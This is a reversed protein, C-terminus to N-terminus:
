LWHPLCPLSQASQAKASWKTIAIVVVEISLVFSNALKQCINPYKM